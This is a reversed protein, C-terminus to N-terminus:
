QKTYLKNEFISMVSTFSIFVITLGEAKRKQKNKQEKGKKALKRMEAKGVSLFRKENNQPLQSRGASGAVGAEATLSAPPKRCFFTM